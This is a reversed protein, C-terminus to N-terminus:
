NWILGKIDNHEQWYMCALKKCLEM